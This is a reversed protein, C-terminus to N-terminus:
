CCGLPTWQQCGGGSGDHCYAKWYSKYWHVQDYSCQPNSLCFYQWTYFAKAEKKPLMAGLLKDGLMTVIRM